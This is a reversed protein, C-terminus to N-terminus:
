AESQFLVAPLPSTYGHLARRSNALTALEAGLSALRTRAKHMLEADQV